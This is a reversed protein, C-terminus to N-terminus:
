KKQAPKRTPKTSKTSGAKKAKAPAPKTSPKKAQAKASQGRFPNELPKTPENTTGDEQKVKPPRICAIMLGTGFIVSFLAVITDIGPILACCGLLLIGVAAEVAFPVHSRFLKEVVLHGLWLGTFVGTLCIVLLWAVLLLIGAKIGFVSVMLLISLTPVLILFGLGSLFNVGFRQVTSEAAIRNKLRPFVIILILAIVFTGIVEIAQSMWLEAATMEVKTSAYTDTHAVSANDLGSIKADDNYVLTGTITVNQGFIIQGAALNVDGDITANNFTVKSATIALDGSLNNEIRVENGAIYVDRGIEADEAIRVLNGAAFLDKRTVGHIELVNAAAINYEGDGRVEMRNGFSLLLGDTSSSNTANNGAYLLNQGFKIQAVDDDDENVSLFPQSNEALTNERPEIALAPVAVVLSVLAVLLVSVLGFKYIRKM